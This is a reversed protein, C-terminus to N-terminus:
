YRISVEFGSGFGCTVHRFTAHLEQKQRNTWIAFDCRRNRPDVRRNMDAADAGAWEGAWEGVALPAVSPAGTAPLHKLSKPAVCACSCGAMGCLWAHTDGLGTCLAAKSLWSGVVTSAKSGAVALYDAPPESEIAAVGLALAGAGATKPKGALTTALEVVM